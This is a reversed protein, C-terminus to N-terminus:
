KLAEAVAKEIAEGHLGRALIVGDGGILVTHPISSVSYIKAAACDWYKIDSMHKWPLGLEEIGKKIWDDHTRDLSVGVIEFGKDKYNKYVEKLNPMEARCPPCWSAWFDVLVLKGKGVYDSLKVENGEPDKMTFDTFIQRADTAKLNETYGKLRVVFADEAMEPAIQQLLSELETASMYYYTSRLMELGVPNGINPAVAEMQVKDMQESIANYEAIKAEQEEEPLAMIEQRLTNAQAQLANLKDQIGQYIDNNATGTISPMEQLLANIQGNELFFGADISSESATGEYTLYRYAAAEQTGEFTFAENAIIASDLVVYQRGEVKQLYVVEGDTAGAISGKITYGNQTGSCAAVLAATALLYALKKM